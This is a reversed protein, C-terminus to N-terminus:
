IRGHAATPVITEAKRQVAASPLAQAARQWAEKVRITVPPPGIQGGGITKRYYSSFREFNKESVWQSKRM